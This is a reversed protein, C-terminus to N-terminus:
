SSRPLGEPMGRSKRRPYALESLLGRVRDTAADRDVELRELSVEYKVTLSRYRDIVTRLADMVRSDYRAVLDEGMVTLVIKRADQESIDAVAEAFKAPLERELQELVKLAAKREELREYEPSQAPSTEEGAETHEEQAAKLSRLHADLAM